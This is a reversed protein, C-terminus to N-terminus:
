KPQGDFPNGLENEEERQVCRKFHEFTTEKLKDISCDVYKPRSKEESVIKRRM